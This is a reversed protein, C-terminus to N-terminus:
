ACPSYISLILYCTYSSYLFSSRHKPFFFVLSLLHGMHRFFSLLPSFFFLLAQVGKRNRRSMCFKLEEFKQNAFPSLYISMTIPHQYMFELYFLWYISENCRSLPINCILWELLPSKLMSVLWLPKCLMTGKLKWRQWKRCWHNSLKMFSVSFCFFSCLTAM